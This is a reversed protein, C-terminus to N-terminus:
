AGWYLSRRETENIFRCEPGCLYDAIPTLHLDTNHKWLCLDSWIRRCNARICLGDFTRPERVHECVIMHKAGPQRMPWAPTTGVAGFVLEMLDEHQEAIKRRDGRAQLQHSAHEDQGLALRRKDGFLSRLDVPQGAAPQPEANTNAPVFDLVLREPLREACAAPSDFLLDLHKSPEPCLRDHVEGAGILVRAAGRTLSLTM